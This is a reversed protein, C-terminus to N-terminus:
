AIALSHETSMELHAHVGTDTRLHEDSLPDNVRLPLKLRRGIVRDLATPPLGTGPRKLCLHEPALVTGAPLDLGAVISRRMERQDSAEGPALRKAPEGRASDSFRVLRITEELEKPDLCIHWDPGRLDRSPTFHKTVVCAGRAAAIVPMLPNSTHDIFGVPCGYRGQLFEITALSTQDEPVGSGDGTWMIHQGHLLAFSRASRKRARAVAWDIEWLGAMATGIFFPLGTDTVADLMDPNNIDCSSISFLPCGVEALMEPLRSSLPSAYAIIGAEQAHAFIEEIQGRSFQRRVYVAHLPHSPVYFDDAIALQFEIADAGANAAIDIMQHAVDIRGENMQGEEAVFLTDQGPGIRRGHEGISFIM